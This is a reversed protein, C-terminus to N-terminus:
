TEAEEGSLERFRSPLNSLSIGTLASYELIEGDRWMTQNHIDKNIVM